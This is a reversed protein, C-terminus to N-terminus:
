KVFHPQGERVQWRISWGEKPQVYYCYGEADYLRHGGSGSVHLFLPATIKLQRGNTFTYIRENEVSIDSFDLDTGNIFGKKAAELADNFNIVLREM